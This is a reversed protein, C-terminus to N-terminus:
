DGRAAENSDGCVSGVSGVDGGRGKRLLSLICADLDVWIRGACEAFIFCLRPVNLESGPHLALNGTRKSWRVGKVKLELM